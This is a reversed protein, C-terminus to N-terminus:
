AAALRAEADRLRRWEDQPVPLLGRAWGTMMYVSALGKWEGYAELAATVAAVLEYSVGTDYM